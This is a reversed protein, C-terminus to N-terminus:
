DDKERLLKVLKLCAEYCTNLKEATCDESRSSGFDIGRSKFGWYKKHIKDDSKYWDELVREIEVIKETETM